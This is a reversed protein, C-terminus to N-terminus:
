YDAKASIKFGGPSAAGSNSNAGNDYPVFVTKHDPSVLGASTSSWGPLKQRAQALSSQGSLGRYLFNPAPLAIVREVNGAGDYDVEMTNNGVAYYTFNSAGRCGGMDRSVDSRPEGLRVVGIRRGAQVSVAGLVGGSVPCASDLSAGNKASTSSSSSKGGGGSAIVVVVVAVVVLGAVAALIPV